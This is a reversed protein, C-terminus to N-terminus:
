VIYGLIAGGFGANALGTIMGTVAMAHAAVRANERGLACYTLAAVGIPASLMIVGTNITYIAIRRGLSKALAEEAQEEETPAFVTDRLHAM